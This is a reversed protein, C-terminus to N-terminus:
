YNGGTLNKVRSVCTSSPKINTNQNSPVTVFAYKFSNVSSTNFGEIGLSVHPLDISSNYVLDWLMPVQSNDNWNTKCQLVVFDVQSLRTKIHQNLDNVNTGFFNDTDPVSFISVDSETNTANNAITVTVCNSIVSPVFSKNQRVAIVPTGWFVLNLYWVVLCEWAVGGGSLQGQDRGSQANSRFINSLIDGLDFLLRGSKQSLIHREILPGWVKWSNSFSKLTAMQNM